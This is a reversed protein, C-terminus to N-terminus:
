KKRPSKPVALFEGSIKPSWYKKYIKMLFEPNNCRKLCAVYEKDPIIRGNSELYNRADGFVSRLTQNDFVLMSYKRQYETAILRKNKLAKVIKSHIQKRVFNVQRMSSLPISLEWDAPYYNNGSSYNFDMSYCWGLKTRLWEYLVGHTSNTLLTGIFIVAVHDQFNKTDIMGGVYYIYRYVDSFIEKHYKRRKWGHPFYKEKLNHDATQIKSLEKTVFKHNYRGGIIIYCRPDFYSKHFSRLMEVSMSKLDADDGITQRNPTLDQYKWNNAKHFELKNGHPWWKSKSKENSIISAETSLDKKYLLPNFVHSLLGKFAVMFFDANIELDYSTTTSTTTANFSGGKLSVYKDFEGHGPFISSRNTVMHELFHATGPLISGTNHIHGVPFYITVLVFPDDTPKGYITMGNKLKTTKFDLTYKM